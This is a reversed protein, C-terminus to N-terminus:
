ILMSNQMQYGCKLFIKDANEAFNLTFCAIFSEFFFATM